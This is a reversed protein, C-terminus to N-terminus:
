KAGEKEILALAANCIATKRYEHLEHFGGIQVDWQIREDGTRLRCKAILMPPMKELLTANATEDSYFDPLKGCVAKLECGGYTLSDYRCQPIHWITRTVGIARLTIQPRYDLWEALKRNAEDRTM